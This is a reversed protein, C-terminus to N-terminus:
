RHPPGAEGRGELPFVGVYESASLPQRVRVLRLDRLEARLRARCGRLTDFAAPVDAPRLDRLALTVHPVWTDVTYNPWIQTGACRVADAVRAYVHALAAGHVVRMFLVPSPGPFLGLGDLAVTIPPLAAAESAVCACLTALDGGEGVFYTIHPYLAERAARLGLRRELADWTALVEDHADGSLLSVVAFIEAMPEGKTPWRPERMPTRQGITPDVFPVFRSGAPPGREDDTQM